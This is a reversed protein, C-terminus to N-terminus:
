ESNDLSNITNDYLQYEPFDDSKIRRLCVANTIGLGKAASSISLYKIGNILIYRLPPLYYYDSFKNNKLRTCITNAKVGLAKAAEELSSYYNGAAIIPKCCIRKMKDRYDPNEWNRKGVEKMQSTMKYKFEVNKWQMLAGQKSLERNQANSMQAKAKERLNDKAGPRTMVKRQNMSMLEKNEEAWKKVRDSVKASYGPRQWAEKAGKRSLERNTPDAMQKKGSEILNQLRRPDESLWKKTIRSLKEKTEDSRKVGFPGEGGTAVNYGMGNKSLTNHKTIMEREIQCVENWDNTKGLIEVTFENLGYKRMAAHLPTSLGKKADFKHQNFRHKVGNSAIGIYSKGNLKCTIKYCYFFRKRTM